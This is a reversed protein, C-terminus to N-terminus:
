SVAPGAPPKSKWLVIIIALVVILNAVLATLRVWTLRCWLEYVEVPLYLSGSVIALWEGWTRCFFLGYAEVFRFAAYLFAIGAMLWLRTDDTHAATDIFVSAYHRHPDLHLRGVLAFALARLDQHLLSLLGFGALLVILGKAAEFFAVSKVVQRSANRFM